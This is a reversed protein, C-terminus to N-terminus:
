QTNLNQELLNLYNEIINLNCDPAFYHNRILLNNNDAVTMEVWVCEDTTELNYRRKVGRFSKSIAVLVGGGRKTNSTLYDRNARFV